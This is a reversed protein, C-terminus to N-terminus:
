RVLSYYLRPDIRPKSPCGSSPSSPQHPMLETGGSHGSWLQARGWGGSLVQQAAGVAGRLARWGCWATISVPVAKKSGAQPNCQSSRFAVTRRPYACGLCLVPNSVPCNATITAKGVCSVTLAHGSDRVGQLREQTRDAQAEPDQHLYQWLLTAQREDAAAAQWEAAAPSLRCGKSGPGWLLVPYAGGSGGRCGPTRRSLGKCM